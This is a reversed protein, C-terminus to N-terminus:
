FISNCCFQFSFIRNIIILLLLLSGFFSIELTIILLIPITCSARPGFDGRGGWRLLNLFVRFGQLPTAPTVKGVQIKQREHSIKRRELSIRPFRHSGIEAM